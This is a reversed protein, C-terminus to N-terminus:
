RRRERGPRIIVPGPQCSRPLEALQGTVDTLVGIDTAMWVRMCEACVDDPVQRASAFPGVDSSMFGCLAITRVGIRGRPIHGDDSM